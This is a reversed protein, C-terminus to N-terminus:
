RLADEQLQRVMACFDRMTAVLSSQEADEHWGGDVTFTDFDNEVGQARHAEAEFLDFTAGVNCSMVNGSADISLRTLVYLRVYDM